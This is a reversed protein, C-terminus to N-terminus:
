KNGNRYNFLNIIKRGFYKIRSPVGSIVWSLKEIKTMLYNHTVQGVGVCVGKIGYKYDNTKIDGYSLDWNTLYKAWWEKSRLHWLYQQRNKGYPEGFYLVSGIPANNILKLFQIVTKDPIHSLVTSTTFLAPEDLKIIEFAQIMDSNIHEVNAYDRTFYKSMNVASSSPEIGIVKKFLPATKVLLWGAGSGIDIHTNIREIIEDVIKKFGLHEFENAQEYEAFRKKCWELDSKGKYENDHASFSDDNGYNNKKVTNMQFNNLAVFYYPNYRYVKKFYPRLIKKLYKFNWNKKDPLIHYEGVIKEIINAENQTINKFIEYEAGEIDIKLLNVKNINFESFIDDLKKVYIITANSQEGGGGNFVSHGAKNVISCNMSIKGSMKYIGYNFPKIMEQFNNLQINKLLKNYNELNPEFAYVQAGKSAAYVSFSGIHAGIDFVVDDKNIKIDKFKQYDEIVCTEGIAPIDSGDCYLSFGSIFKLIFEGKGNKLGELFEQYNKIKKPAKNKIKYTYYKLFYKNRVYTVGKDIFNNINM